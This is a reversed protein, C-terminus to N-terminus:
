HPDEATLELPAIHHIGHVSGDPNFSLIRGDDLLWVEACSWDFLTGLDFIVCRLDREARWRGTVEQKISGKDRADYRADSSDSADTWWHSVFTEDARWHTEAKVGRQDRLEGLDIVDSFLHTIESSTLRTKGVLDSTVGEERISEAAADLVVSVVFFAFGVLTARMFSSSSGHRATFLIGNQLGQVGITIEPPRNADTQTAASDTIDIM